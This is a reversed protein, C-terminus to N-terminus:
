INYLFTEDISWGLQKQEDVLRFVTGIISTKSHQPDEPDCCRSREFDIEGESDVEFLEIFVPSAINGSDDVKVMYYTGQKDASPNEPSPSAGGYHWVTLPLDLAMWSEIEQVEREFDASVNDATEDDQKEAVWKYSSANDIALTLHYSVWEEAGSAILTSDSRDLYAKVESGLEGNSPPSQHERM